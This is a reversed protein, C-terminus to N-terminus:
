IGWFHYTVVRYNDFWPYNDGFLGFYLILSFAGLLFLILVGINLNLKGALQIKKRCFFYVLTSVSFTIICNILANTLSFSEDGSNYFEVGWFNGRSPFLFGRIEATTLQGDNNIYEVLWYGSTLLHILIFVPVIFLFFDRFTKGAINM